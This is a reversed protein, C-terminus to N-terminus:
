AQEHGLAERQVAAQSLGADRFLGVFGTTALIMGQLGFDEPSLLRALVMMAGIRLAFKLGQAFLSIAGGRVSERKVSNAATGDLSSTAEATALTGVSKEAAEVKGRDLVKAAGATFLTRLM